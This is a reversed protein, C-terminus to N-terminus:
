PLSGTMVYMGPDDLRMHWGPFVVITTTVEEVIAPGRVVNGVLLTAGDYV